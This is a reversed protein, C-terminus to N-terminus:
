VEFAFTDVEERIDLDSLPKGDITAHLLIDLFTNGRNEYTKEESIDESVNEELLKKRRENIVKDTFGHLIKLANTQKTYLNTFRFYFDNRLLFGFIRLNIVHSIRYIFHFDCM